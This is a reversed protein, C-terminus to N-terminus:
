AAGEKTMAQRALYNASAGPGTGVTRGLALISRKGRADADATEEHVCAKGPYIEYWSRYKRPTVNTMVVNAGCGLGAALGQNGGVTALATTAPMNARPCALRTIALVKCTMEASSPVQEDGVSEVIRCAHSGLVTEPHAVFPGVGIMDLNLEIFHLLDCALDRYTQGPIGIMVGSGVEFDLERLAALIAFRSPADARLPPHIRAFLDQNSTEFRLLYRDAGAERWDALEHRDREGFSLTVALGTEQKIRRVLDAVWGRTLRPDEGSQLVVTGYGFDAARQASAVIEDARMRYRTVDVRDRHLGCYACQRMCHNSIELLGRLHVADGVNQLRVTDARRWLQDLRTPDSERLWYNIEHLQM